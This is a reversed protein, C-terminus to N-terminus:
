YTILMLSWFDIHGITMSPSEGEAPASVGTRERRRTTAQADEGDEEDKEVGRRPCRYTRM